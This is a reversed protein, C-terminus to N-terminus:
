KTKDKDKFRGRRDGNKESPQKPDPKRKRDDDRGGGSRKERCRDDDHQKKDNSGKRGKKRKHWKNSGGDNQTGVRKILGLRRCFSHAIPTKIEVKHARAQANINKLTEATAESLTERSLSTLASDFVATAPPRAKLATEMEKRFPEPMASLIIDRWRAIGQTDLMSPINSFTRLMSKSAEGVFQLLQTAETGPKATLFRTGRAAGEYDAEGPRDPNKVRKDLFEFVDAHSVEIFNKKTNSEFMVVARIGSDVLNCLDASPNTCDAGFHIKKADRAAKYRQWFENIENQSADTLNHKSDWSLKSSEVSHKITAQSATEGDKAEM